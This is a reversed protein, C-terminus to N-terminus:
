RQCFLIPVHNYIIVIDFVQFYLNRMVSNSIRVTVGPGFLKLPGSHTRSVVFPSGTGSGLLKRQSYTFTALVIAM